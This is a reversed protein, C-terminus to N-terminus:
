VTVLAALHNHKSILDPGWTEAHLRRMRMSVRSEGHDETMLRRIRARLWGCAGRNPGAFHGDLPDRSSYGACQAGLRGDDVIM